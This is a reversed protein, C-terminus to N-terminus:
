LMEELTPSGSRTAAEEEYEQYDIPRLQLFQRQNSGDIARTNDFVDELSSFGLFQLTLLLIAYSSAVIVIGIVAATIKNRASEIKGRDGGSTIWSFAGWILYFLVLLASIVMVFSLLGNFLQSFSVAFGQPIIFNALMTRKGDKNIFYQRQTSGASSAVTTSLYLVGDDNRTIVQNNKTDTNTNLGSAYVPQSLPIGILASLIFFIIAISVRFHMDIQPLIM